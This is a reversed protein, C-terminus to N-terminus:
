HAQVLFTIGSATFHARLRFQVLHL